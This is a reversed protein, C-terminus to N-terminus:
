KAATYLAAKDFKVVTVTECAQITFVSPEGTGFSNINTAIEGEFFFATNIDQGDKDYFARCYGSSIFFLAQCVQGTQLLEEKKRFTLTTLAPTLQQWSEASIPSLNEIFARLHDLATQQTHTSM